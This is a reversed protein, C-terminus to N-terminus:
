RGMKGFDASLWHQPRMRVTVSGTRENATAEIYADGAETGLYRRAIVRREDEDVPEIAVVPGEVSVYRYPLGETQVCFSCRGTERLARTKRSSEGTVFSLLGGPEYRYWIPVTLPARDDEGAVSVVGVHLDALYAEREEVTMALTM